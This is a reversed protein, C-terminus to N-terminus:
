ILCKEPNLSIGYEKCKEFCLRLKPLHTAEDSYVSFDDLFLIMFKNLYKRFAKTVARQYTALVNKLGFPNVLWVFAGWETKLTTKYRDQEAVSLQNYGYFEDSFTDLPYDIVADLV